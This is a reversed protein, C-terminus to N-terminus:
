LKGRRNLNSVVQSFRFPHFFLAVSYMTITWSVGTNIYLEHKHRPCDPKWTSRM